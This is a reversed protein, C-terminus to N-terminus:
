KAGKASEKEGPASPIKRFVEKGNEYVLLGGAPPTAVAPRPRSHADFAGVNQGSMASTGVAPLSDTSASDGVAETPLSSTGANSSSTNQQQTRSAFRNASKSKHTYDATARQWVWHSGVPACLLVACTLVVVSLAFTMVDLHRGNNPSPLEPYVAASESRCTEREAVDCEEPRRVPPSTDPVGTLRPESAWQLHSALEPYSKSRRTEREAVNCEESRRVPPSADPVGTLRPESAWQLNRLARQALAELTRGEREGFASPRSSFVEFVGVLDDNRLLPLAMLSRISLLRAAEVDARPDSQADDCRLMQRTKVCAGSLGAETDLRVGLEPANAGKSARCVLEGDRELAIAAGSAGTAWCAQKVLQNLVIEFALDTSLEDSLSRGSLASVRAALGALDSGAEPPADPRSASSSGPKAPDRDNTLAPQDPLAARAAIDDTETKTRGVATQESREGHSAPPVEAATTGLQVLEVEESATPRTCVDDAEAKAGPVAAERIKDISTATPDAAADALGRVDATQVGPVDRPFTETNCRIPHLELDAVVEHLIELDVQKQRAATALLLANFCLTNIERPVGGSHELVSQVAAPTFLPPGQYGAIRLRHEIYNRTDELDFPILTTRFPIRQYLQALEPTALRQAMQPQGALIIQLLKESPTEFNSLLRLTELVSIDLNQAEDIIVITQRGARNERILLQNLTEQMRMPDSDPAEGALKLILYRLLDRSDGQFQFLYATRVNSFQELLNFLTTTKGMGPPAILAQFGVRYQIGIILSSRAKAHTRSQYLYRHNPTVGFPNELIGYREYFLQSRAGDVPQLGSKQPEREDSPM